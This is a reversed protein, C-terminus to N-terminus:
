PTLLKRGERARALTHTYTHTHTHTHTHTDKGFCVTLIHNISMVPLFFRMQKFNECSSVDKPAPCTGYGSVEVTFSTLCYM